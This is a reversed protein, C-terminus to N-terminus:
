FSPKPMLYGVFTSIGNFGFCSFFFSIVVQVVRTRLTILTMWFFAYQQFGFAFM